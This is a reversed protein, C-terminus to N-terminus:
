PGWNLSPTLGVPSQDMPEGAGGAGGGSTIGRMEDGTTREVAKTAFYRFGMPSVNAM